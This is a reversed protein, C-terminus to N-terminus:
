MIALMGRSNHGIIGRKWWHKTKDRGMHGGLGGGYLERIIQERLSSKPICLQNSRFLSGDQIYMSNVTTHTQQCKGQIDGFDEDNKYMEKLCDFGVVEIRLTTLLSVQENLVDAVKNTVGYKHKLTFHFRQIYAVWQAHM